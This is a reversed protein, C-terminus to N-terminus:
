GYQKMNELLIRGVIRWRGELSLNEPYDTEDSGFKIVMTNKPKMSVVLFNSRLSSEPAVILGEWYVDKIKLQSLDIDDTRITHVEPKQRGLEYAGHIAQSVHANSLFDMGAPPLTEGVPYRDFYLFTFIDVLSKFVVKEAMNLTM